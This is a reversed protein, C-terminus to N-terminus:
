HLFDEGPHKDSSQNGAPYEAMLPQMLWPSQKPGERHGVSESFECETFKALFNNFFNCSPM